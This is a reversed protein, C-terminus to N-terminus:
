ITGRLYGQRIEEPFKEIAYRLTTRPMTKYHKKLFAIETSPSRKGVERLMWGVAKHMLDHKDHLLIEALELSTEYQNYKIFWFSALIAIRREWLSKSKALKFLVAYNDSPSGKRYGFTRGETKSTGSPLVKSINLLFAGVIKPATLDVLDWNNIWKTHALYFKYIKTRTKEDAKAFKEVLIFLAIQREEHYKSQILEDMETLLIGIDLNPRSSLYCRAIQRCVPVKIGHFIDGEGYDGKGTKFFWALNKARLPDSHSRIEKKLEKFINPM